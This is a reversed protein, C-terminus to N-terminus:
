LAEIDRTEKIIVPYSEIMSPIVAFDTSVKSEVYITIHPADPSGGQSIGRIGSITLLSSRHEAIVQTIPKKSMPIKSPHKFSLYPFVTRGHDNWMM